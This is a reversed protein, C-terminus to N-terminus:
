ARRNWAAVAEDATKCFRTVAGCQMCKIVPYSINQVWQNSHKAEGGCFPCTKLEEDYEIDLWDFKDKIIADKKYCMVCYKAYESKREEATKFKEGNTM